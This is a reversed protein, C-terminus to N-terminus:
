LIFYRYFCGIFVNQSRRSLLGIRFVEHFHDSNVNKDLKAKVDIFLPEFAWNISIKRIKEQEPVCKLLLKNSNLKIHQRDCFLLIIFIISFWDLSKSDYILGLVFYDVIVVKWWVLLDPRELNDNLFYLDWYESVIYELWLGARLLDILM